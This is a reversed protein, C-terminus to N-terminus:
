KFKHGCDKCYFDPNDEKIICGGLKVEGRDVKDFMESTPFGYVIRIVRPSQCKPCILKM